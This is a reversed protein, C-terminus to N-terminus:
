ADADDASRLDRERLTATLIPLVALDKPRGTERKVSILTELDLTLISLGGSPRLRITHPLLQEFRRDGALVGLM